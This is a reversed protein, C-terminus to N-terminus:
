TIRNFFTERLIPYRLFPRFSPFSEATPCNWISTGVRYIPLVIDIKHDGDKSTGKSFELFKKKLTHQDAEEGANSMLYEIKKEGEELDYGM